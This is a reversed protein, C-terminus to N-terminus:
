QTGSSFRLDLRGDAFFPVNRKRLEELMWEPLVMKVPGATASGFREEIRQVRTLLRKINSNM